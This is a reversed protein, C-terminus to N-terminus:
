NCSAQVLLNKTPIRPRHQGELLHFSKHAMVLCAERIRGPLTGAEYAPLIEISNFGCTKLLAMASRETLGYEHTIDIYRQFPAFLYGMNPTQIILKGGKNLRLKIENLFGVVMEKKIHEISDICLIVDWSSSPKFNRINLADFHEVFPLSYKRCIGVNEQSLDFGDINTYGLSLCFRLFHGEGCGIDLIKANKDQPLIKGISRQFSKNILTVARHDEPSVRGPTNSHYNDIVQKTTDLNNM